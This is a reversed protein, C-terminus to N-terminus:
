CGGEANSSSVSGGMSVNVIKGYGNKSCTTFELIGNPDARFGSTGFTLFTNNGSISVAIDPSDCSFAQAVSDLTGDQNADPGVQYSVKGNAESYVVSFAMRQTVAESKAFQVATVLKNSCAVLQNDQVTSQYSPIAFAVLISILVMTVILEVLTFGLNRM